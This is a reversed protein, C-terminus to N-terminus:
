DSVVIRFGVNYVRQWQPYDWRASARADKPRDAWSGGRVAKIAKGDHTANGARGQGPHPQYDDLTWEAVNGIM